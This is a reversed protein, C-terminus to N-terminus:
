ATRQRREEAFDPAAANLGDRAALPFPCAREREVVRLLKAEYDHRLRQADRNRRRDAEQYLKQFARRKGRDDAEDLERARCLDHVICGKAREGDISENCHDVEAQAPRQRPEGFMEFAPKSPM